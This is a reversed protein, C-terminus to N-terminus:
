CHHAEVGPSSSSLRECILVKHADRVSTEDLHEGIFRSQYAYPDDQLLFAVSALVAKQVLLRDTVVLLVQALPDRPAQETGAGASADMGIDIAAVINESFCDRVGEPLPYLAHCDTWYASRGVSCHM